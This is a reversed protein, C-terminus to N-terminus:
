GKGGGRIMYELGFYKSYAWFLFMVVSLLFISLASGFGWNGFQNVHMDILQSIMVEKRGGLLAPIIFYGLALIFVQLCGAGLGPLSLPLFIKIFAQFRNAGLIKASQLLHPNIGGMVSYLPLIMYPLLIQVMAIVVSPLGYLMKIPRSTLGMMMFFQNIIGNKQLIIMWVFMKALFSVLFASIIISIAINKLRRGAIQSLYYACGYGMVLCVVTVIASIKITNIIVKLYVPRTFLHLYHKLTFHPDFFSYVFMRCLPIALLIFITLFAPALLLIMKWQPWRASLRRFFINGKYSNLSNASRNEIM